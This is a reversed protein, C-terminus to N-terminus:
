IDDMGVEGEFVFEGPGILWINTFQQPGTRTFRVKLIGGMTQLSLTHEGNPLNQHIAAVLASATVGTGCSLTEDEVGREYTRILIAGEDMELFNVNIGKPMFPASYRIEAGRTKVDLQMIDRVFTVYHPSGTDLIYHDGEQLVSMVDQMQLYVKDGEVYAEHPGDVAHFYYREKEIGLASAFSILCRGGNGCMTSPHGDSNYYVMEFDYGPKEELLMVGDAGIGFRRDCIQRIWETRDHPIHGKRNDFLIFDNGAGQYKSFKLQM